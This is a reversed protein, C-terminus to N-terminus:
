KEEKNLLGKARLWPCDPRHIVVNMGEDKDHYGYSEGGCLACVMHGRKDDYEPNSEILRDLLAELTAVRLHLRDITEQQRQKIVVNQRAFFISDPDAYNM